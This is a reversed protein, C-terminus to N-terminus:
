LEVMFSKIVDCNVPLSKIQNLTFSILGYMYSREQIM